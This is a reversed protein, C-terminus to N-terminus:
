TPDLLKTSTFLHYVTLLSGKSLSLASRATLPSSFFWYCQPARRVAYPVLLLILSVM